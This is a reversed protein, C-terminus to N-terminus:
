VCLNRYVYNALSSLLGRCMIRIFNIPIPVFPLVVRDFCMFVMNHNPNYIAYMLFSQWFRCLMWKWKTPPFNKPRFFASNSHTNPLINRTGIIRTAILRDDNAIRTLYTFRTKWKMKYMEFLFHIFANPHIVLTVVNWFVCKWARLVITPTKQRFFSASFKSNINNRERSPKHRENVNRFWCELLWKRRFIAWM